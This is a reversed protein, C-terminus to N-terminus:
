KEGEAPAAAQRAISDRHSEIKSIIDAFCLRVNGSERESLYMTGHYALNNIEGILADRADVPAAPESVAALILRIDSLRLFSGEGETGLDFSHIDDVDYGRRGDTRTSIYKRLRTKAERLRQENTTSMNM